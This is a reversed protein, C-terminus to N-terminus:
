GTSTMALAACSCSTWPPISTRTSTRDRSRSRDAVFRYGACVSVGEGPANVIRYRVRPRGPSDRDEPVKELQAIKDLQRHTYVKFPRPEYLSLDKVNLAQNM